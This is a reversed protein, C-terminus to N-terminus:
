IVISKCDIVVRWRQRVGLITAGLPNSGKSCSGFDQASGNRELAIRKNILSDFVM